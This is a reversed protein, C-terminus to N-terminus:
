TRDPIIDKKEQSMQKERSMQARLDRLLDSRRAPYREGEAIALIRDTRFTRFEQRLECWAALIRARDMFALQIPWVVRRSQRGEVDSYSLDLRRQARIADRLRALPVANDPFTEAPPGPMALPTALTTQAEPSLVSGIKALASAAAKTLVEDGRQDVYNLGLLVAEIEDESLMLPPLFLGPRLIYGVGAEGEIPAGQAALAAIDRYVTRESVELERSLEAATVPRRRGRLAQLLLLLRTSRSM